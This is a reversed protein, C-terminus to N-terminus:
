DKFIFTWAPANPHQLRWVHFDFWIRAFMACAMVLFVTIVSLWSVLRALSGPKNKETETTPNMTGTKNVQM